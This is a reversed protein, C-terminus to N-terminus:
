NAKKKEKCVYQPLYYYTEILAIRKNENGACFIKPNVMWQTHSKKRIFDTRQLAYMARVLTQHSILLDKEIKSYPLLFLNSSRNMMQLIYALVKVQKGEIEYLIHVFDKTFCKSFGNASIKCPQEEYRQEFEDVVEGNENVIRFIEGTANNSKM